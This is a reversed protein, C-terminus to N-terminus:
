NVDKAAQSRIWQDRCDPCLWTPPTPEAKIYYENPKEDPLTDNTIYKAVMSEPWMKGNSSDNYSGMPPDCIECLDFDLKGKYNKVFDYFESRLVKKFGDNEPKM